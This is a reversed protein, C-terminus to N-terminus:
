DADDHRSRCHSANCLQLLRAVGARSCKTHATAFLRCMLKALETRNPISQPVHAFTTRKLSACQEIAHTIDHNAHVGSVYQPLRDATASTHSQEALVSDREHQRGTQIALTSPLQHSSLNPIDACQRPQHLAQMCMQEVGKVAHAIETFQQQLAQVNATADSREARCQLKHQELARSLCGLEHSLSSECAAVQDRCM